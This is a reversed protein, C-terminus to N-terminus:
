RPAPGWGGVALATLVIEVALSALIIGMVRVLVAAGQQGIVRLIATSLILLVFNIFLV